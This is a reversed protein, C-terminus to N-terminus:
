RDHYKSDIPKTFPLFFPVANESNISIINDLESCLLIGHPKGNSKDLAKSSWNMAYWQMYLQFTLSEWPYMGTYWKSSLSHYYASVIMNKRGFLIVSDLPTECPLLKPGCKKNYIIVVDKSDFIRRHIGTRPLCYM